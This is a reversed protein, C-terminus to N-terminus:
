ISEAGGLDAPSLVPPAALARLTSSGRPATVWTATFTRGPLECEIILRHPTEVFILEVRLTDADYWGGSAFVPAAEGNWRGAGWSNGIPVGLEADLEALILQWSGAV